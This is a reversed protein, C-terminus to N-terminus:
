KFGSCPYVMQVMEYFRENIHCNHINSKADLNLSSLPIETQINSSHVSIRPMYIWPLPYDM